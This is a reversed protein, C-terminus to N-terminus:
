LWSLIINSKMLLKFSHKSIFWNYKVLQPKGNSNAGSKSKLWTEEVLAALSTNGSEKLCQLLFQFADSSKRMIIEYFLEIRQEDDQIKLQFTLIM